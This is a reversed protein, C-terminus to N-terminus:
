LLYLGERLTSALRPVRKTISTQACYAVDAGLRLPQLAKASASENLASTLNPYSHYLRYAALASNSPTVPLDRVKTENLFIHCLYGAAVADDLVFQGQRGACVLALGHLDRLLELSERIVANANLLCGVLVASAGACARVAATGNTTAMVVHKGSFDLQSFETPSNGYDFGYPPLGGVEGALLRPGLVQRPESRAEEVSAALGISAAGRDFLTVITSSARLVDLVVAVRGELSVAEDPLFAVDLALPKPM